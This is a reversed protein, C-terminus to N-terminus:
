EDANDIEALAADIRPRMIRWKCGPVLDRLIQAINDRQQRLADREAELQAIGASLYQELAADSTRKKWSEAFRRATVELLANQLRANEGRLAEAENKYFGHTVVGNRVEWAVPERGEQQAKLAALEARLQDIEERHERSSQENGDWRKQIEAALEARLKDREVEAKELLDTLMANTDREASVNAANVSLAARMDRDDRRCLYRNRALASNTLLRLSLYQRRLTEYDSAPEANLEDPEAIVSQLCSLERSVRDLKGAMADYEEGCDECPFSQVKGGNAVTCTPDDYKCGHKKCCHETHVDKSDLLKRDITVKNM